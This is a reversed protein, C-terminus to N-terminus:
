EIYDDRLHVKTYQNNTLDQIIDLFTINKLYCEYSVQDLYEKNICEIQHVKLLHEFKKTYSYGITIKYLPVLHKEVIDAVKLADAVSQRYARTLGGAGLKIGGFYRTVIAIINSLENKELVDLMPVGATKSPEGDDYARKANNVIYAVCNHTADHYIQKYENIIQDVQSEDNCPILTCIFESKKIVLRNVTIKRVSKM